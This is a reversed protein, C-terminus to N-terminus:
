VLAQYYLAKAKNDLVFADYCIRGEILSGSIGPPDQHVVFTELKMPAVTACPHAVMFGFGEPLRNAPIKQVYMGDIMAIVGNLRLENGIDTDMATAIEQSLDFVAADEVEEYYERGDSDLGLKADDKWFVNYFTAADDLQYGIENVKEPTVFM